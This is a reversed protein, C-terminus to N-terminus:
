WTDRKDRKFMPVIVAILVGLVVLGGGLLMKDRENNDNLRINESNLVELENKLEENERRLESNRKDLSIANTSIRKIDALEALLNKNDEELRNIKKANSTNTSTLSNSEESLSTFKAQLQEHQVQLQELKTKAIPEAVLFRTPLWGEIGEPTRVKSYGSEPNTVLLEIATGSRVGKHVIRFGLGEGSRLPAYLTDDIYRTEAFVFSTTLSALLIGFWILIPHKM